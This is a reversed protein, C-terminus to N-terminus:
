EGKGKEIKDLLLRIEEIDKKSLELEGIAHQILANSSNGFATRVLTKLLNRRAAAPQRIATYIHARGSGAVRKVLGKEEMRQVRKLVTTYAVKRTECVKEHLQAVTAEGLQWLIQLSELESPSPKKINQAM